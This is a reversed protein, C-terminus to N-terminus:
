RNHKPGLPAATFVGVLNKPALVGTHVPRTAATFCIVAKLGRQILSCLRERGIAFLPTRHPHRTAIPRARVMNRFVLPQPGTSFANIGAAQRSNVSTCEPSERKRDCVM